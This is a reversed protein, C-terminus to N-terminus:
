RFPLNETKEQAPRSKPRDTEKAAQMKRDKAEHYTNLIEGFLQERFEKTIPYVIDKYASEGNKAGAAAKYAPMSIFEGNRGSIISISSVVFSDELYVSAFGRINSGQREYPTVRVNFAPSESGEGIAFGDKDLKGAKKLEYAELISGSLEQQFDATIPNCIDKYVPNNYEDVEKTKQSPMSIFLGNGDKREVVAINRVVLSNGFVVTAYAKARSEERNVESIMIRYNM